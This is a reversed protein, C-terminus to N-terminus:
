QVALPLQSGQPGQVLLALLLVLLLHYLHVFLVVLVVLFELIGQVEQCEQCTPSSPNEPVGQIWLFDLSYQDALLVLLVPRVLDEQVGQNLPHCLLILVSLLVQFGQAEQFFLLYLFAQHYQHDLPEQVV